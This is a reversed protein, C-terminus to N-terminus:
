VRDRIAREVLLTVEPDVANLAAFKFARELDYWVALRAVKIYERTGWTYPYVHDVALARIDQGIDYIQKLVKENPVEGGDLAKCRESMIHILLAEPPMETKLFMGRSVDAAAQTNTGINRMDWSPNQTLVPFSYNARKSVEGRNADLVLQKSDDFMSRFFQGINEEGVNWEDVDM